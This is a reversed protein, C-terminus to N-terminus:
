LSDRLIMQAPITTLQPIDNGDIKQLLLSVATKAITKIDQRVTSLPIATTEAFLIDDFGGVAIDQPIRIGARLLANEVGSALTDNACLICDAQAILGSTILENAAAIGEAYSLESRHMVASEDAIVSLFGKKREELSVEGRPGTVYYVKKKGSSVAYRTIKAMAQEYDSMVTPFDIDEYRSVAFIAPMTLKNFYAHPHSATYLPCLILGDVRNDMMETIIKEEYVPNNESMAITMGYGAARVAHNVFHVLTAYYVNRIDPVVLGLMGSRKTVLTRAYPNPRYDLEKATECIRKKTQENVLPSNNLALSVTAPSVGVIKAIDKIGVM